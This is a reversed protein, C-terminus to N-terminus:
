TKTLARFGKLSRRKSNLQHYDSESLPIKYNVQFLKKGKITM